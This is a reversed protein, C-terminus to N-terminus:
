LFRMDRAPSSRLDDGNVGPPIVEITPQIKTEVNEDRADSPQQATM